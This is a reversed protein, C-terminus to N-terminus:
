PWEQSEELEAIEAHCACECQDDLDYDDPDIGYRIQACEHADWSVCACRSQIKEVETVFHDLQESM